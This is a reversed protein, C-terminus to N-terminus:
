QDNQVGKSRAARDLDERVAAALEQLVEEPVGYWLALDRVAARLGIGADLGAQKLVDNALHSAALRAAEDKPQGESLGDDTATGESETFFDKAPVTKRAGEFMDGTGYLVWDPRLGIREQALELKPAPPEREGSEYYQYGRTSVQFVNAM